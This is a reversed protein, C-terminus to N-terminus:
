VALMVGSNSRAAHPVSARGARTKPFRSRPLRRKSPLARRPARYCVPLPPASRASIRERANPSPARAMVTGLFSYVFSRKDPPREGALPGRKLQPASGRRRGQLNLTARLEGPCLRLEEWFRAGAAELAKNPLVRATILEARSPHRRDLM